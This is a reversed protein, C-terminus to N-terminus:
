SEKELSLLRPEKLSKQWIINEVSQDEENRKGSSKGVLGRSGQLTVGLGPRLDRNLIVLLVSM